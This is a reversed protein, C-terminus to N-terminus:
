DRPSPSTYLLCINVIQAAVEFGGISYGHAARWINSAIEYVGLVIIWLPFKYGEEFIVWVFLLTFLPILDSIAHAVASNNDSMLPMFFYAIIACMLISGIVKVHPPNKSIILIGVFLMVQSAALVGILANIIEIQM